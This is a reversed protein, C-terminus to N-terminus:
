YSRSGLRATSSTRTPYGDDDGGARASKRRLSGFGSRRDDRDNERTRNIRDPRAEDGADVPRASVRSADNLEGSEQFCFAQLKQMLQYGIGSDNAHQQIRGIWRSLGLRCVHM